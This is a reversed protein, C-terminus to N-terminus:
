YNSSNIVSVIKMSKANNILCKIIAYYIGPYGMVLSLDISSMM